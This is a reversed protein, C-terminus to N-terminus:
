VTASFSQSLSSGQAPGEVAEPDGIYGLADAARGRIDYNDAELAKILKKVKGKEEWKKIKEKTIAM